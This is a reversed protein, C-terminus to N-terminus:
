VQNWFIRQHFNRMEMTHRCGFDLVSRHWRPRASTGAPECAPKRHGHVAVAHLRFVAVSVTTKETSIASALADHIPLVIEHLERISFVREFPKEEIGFVMFQQIRAAPVAARVVPPPSTVRSIARGRTNRMIGSSYLDAGLGM